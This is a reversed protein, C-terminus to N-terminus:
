RQGKWSGKQQQGITNGEGWTGYFSRGDANLTFSFWGTGGNSFRWYGEAISGDARYSVSHFSGRQGANTQYSGSDGRLETTGKVWQGNPTTYESHFKKERWSAGGGHQRKRCGVDEIADKIDNKIEELLDSYVTLDRNRRVLRKGDKVYELAEKLKKCGQRLCDQGFEGPLNEAAKGFLDGADLLLREVKPLIENLLKNESENLVSANLSAMGGKTQQLKAAINLTRQKLGSAMEPTLDQAAAGATLGALGLLVFFLRFLRKM